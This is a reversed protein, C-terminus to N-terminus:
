NLVRSLFILSFKFIFGLRGQPLPIVKKLRPVDPKGDMHERRLVIERTELAYNFSLKDMPKVKIKVGEIETSSESNLVFSEPMDILHRGLCRTTMNSNITEVRQSEKPTMPIAKPQCAAVAAALTLALAPLLRTRLLHM